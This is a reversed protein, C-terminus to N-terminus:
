EAHDIDFGGGASGLDVDTRVRGVWVRGSAGQYRIVGEGEGIRLGATSGDVDAAGAVHGIEVGGVGLNGRLEGIRGLRVHGSALNLECDGLLGDTHAETWATNLVLRSGVPLEVTIAVSGNKDGSKTMKIALVVGSFDVKTNEAVKVDTSSASNVPEVRVVTDQRESAVIRARAGATTLTATIPEPTTFTSM